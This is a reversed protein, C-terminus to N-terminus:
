NVSKNWAANVFECEQVRSDSRHLMEEQLGRGMRDWWVARLCLESRRSKAETTLHRPRDSWGDYRDHRGPHLLVLFRRRFM